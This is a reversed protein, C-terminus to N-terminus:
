QPPPFSPNTSDRLSWFYLDMETSVQLRTDFYVNVVMNSSRWGGRAVTRALPINMLVQATVSGSRLSHSTYVGFPPPIVQLATLCSTLADTVVQPRLVLGPRAWYQEEETGTAIRQTYFRFQLALPNRAHLRHPHHHCSLACAGVGRVLRGKLTRPRATLTLYGQDARDLVTQGGHRIHVDGVQVTRVSNERWTLLYQFEVMAAQHEMISHPEATLGLHRIRVVIEAPLATRVDQLVGRQDDQNRFARVLDVHHNNIFPDPLGERTHRTRIASLYHDISRGHVRDEEFLHGIYALLTGEDAPLARLGDQECYNTFKTWQSSKTQDTTPALCHGALRVTARGAATSPVLSAIRRQLSRSATEGSRGSAIGLSPQRSPVHLAETRGSPARRTLIALATSTNRVVASWDLQTSRYDRSRGGRQDQPSYGLDMATSPEVTSQLRRGMERFVSGANSEEERGTIGRAALVSARATLPSLDRRLNAIIADCCPRTPEMLSQPQRRTQQASVAVLVSSNHNEDPSPRPSPSPTGGHAGSQLLGHEVSYPVGGHQRRASSPPLRGRSDESPGLRGGSGHTCCRTGPTHNVEPTPIPVMYGSRFSRRGFWGEHGTGSYRWIGRRSRRYSPVLVTRRWSDIKRRRGAVYVMITPGTTRHAFNESYATPLSGQSSRKRESRRISEEYLVEGPSLSGISISRSWLLKGFPKGKGMQEEATSNKPDLEGNGAARAVECTHPLLSVKRHRYGAGLARSPDRRTGLGRKRPATADRAKQFPYRFGRLGRSVGKILKSRSRERTRNPLRRDMSPGSPMTKREHIENPPEVIQRVLIAVSDLRLTSCHVSLVSRQVPIFVLGVDEPPPRLAPVRFGLRLISPSRGSLSQSWIFLAHGNPSIEQGLTPEAREPKYYVPAERAALDCICELHAIREKFLKKCTPFKGTSLYGSQVRGGTRGVWVRFRSSITTCRAAREWPPFSAASSGVGWVIPRPHRLRFCRHVGMKPRKTTHQGVPSPALHNACLLRVIGNSRVTQSGAVAPPMERWVKQQKSSTNLLSSQMYTGTRKLLFRIANPRLELRSSIQSSIPRAKVRPLSPKSTPQECRYFRRQAGYVRKSLGSSDPGEEQILRIVSCLSPLWARNLGAVLPISTSSNRQMEATKGFPRSISRLKLNLTASRQRCSWVLAHGSNNVAWWALLLSTALWIQMTLHNPRSSQFHQTPPPQV